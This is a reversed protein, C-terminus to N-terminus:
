ATDYVYFSSGRKITTATANSAFQAAQVTLTGAANVTITGRIQAHGATGTTAANAVAAGLAAGQASGKIGNAASDVIWGDYLIATATATGSIALQIGGTAADTWLIDAEFRYTRGAQVNVTLGAVNALTTNSTIAVDATVRAQGGWQFWGASSPIAGTGIGLVGAAIRTFAIDSTGSVSANASFGLSLANSISIQNGAAYYQFAISSGNVFQLLGGSAGSQQFGTGSNIGTGGLQLTGTSPNVLLTNRTLAGTGAAQLGITLVNATTTWDLVGREYNNVDTFTNYVRLGQAATANRQGLINAADRFISADPASLGSSAWQLAGASYLVTNGSSSQVAFASGGCIFSGSLTWAGANSVAFDLTGTGLTVVGTKAIKFVDAADANLRILNGAFGGSTVSMLIADQGAGTWTDTLNYLPVTM